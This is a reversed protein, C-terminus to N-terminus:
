IIVVFQLLHTHIHPHPHKILRYYHDLIALKSIFTNVNCDTGPKETNCLMLHQGSDGEPMLKQEQKCSVLFVLLLAGALVLIGVFIMFLAGTGVRPASSKRLHCNPKETDICNCVTVSLNHVATKGQLDSVELLLDYHGSYSMIHDQSRKFEGQLPEISWKGEVDGLLKFRFPGSYPEEDLDVVTINAKSVGDSQCMDFMGNPLFPVNDNKDQVHIRLTATSTMPPKGNDVALITVTYISNNVHVSERDISKTTTIKGTKPDVTVCDAPDEGKVYRFCMHTANSMKLKQIFSDKAKWLGTTSRSVVKCSFLSIENRVSVTVNRQSCQKCSCLCLVKQVYLLGENTEPDTTIRFNNDTDGHIEYKARWAVSGKTDEDTVQLRSVLVNRQGEKVKRVTQGTIVPPHNNGDEINVIITCSSSLQKKEGRDKAEVIITYKEAKESSLFYFELDVPSPTVSVIRFGFLQNNGSDIDTAKLTIVESGQSISEQITIEYTKRDFRPPNDNADQIGIVIGLRTDIVKSFKDLALFVLKLEKFKEYDVPGKVTIVGKNHDIELIGKPDKDVGDGSIQFFTLAKEVLIYPFEGDYGEDITFSDIIWNRKQRQLVESSLRDFACGKCSM